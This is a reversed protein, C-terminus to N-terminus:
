LVIGRWDQETKEAGYKQEYLTKYMQSESLREQNQLYNIQKQCDIYTFYLNNLKYIRTIDNSSDKLEQIQNLLEKKLLQLLHIQKQLDYKNSLLNNYDM